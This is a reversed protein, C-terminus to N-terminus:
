PTTTNPLNPDMPKSSPPDQNTNGSQEESQTGRVDKRELLLQAGMMPNNQHWSGLLASAEGDSLEWLRKYSQGWKLFRQSTPQWAVWGEAQRVALAMANLKSPERSCVGSSHTFVPYVIPTQQFAYGSGISCCSVLNPLEQASVEADSSDPRSQDKQTKKDLGTQKLSVSDASSSKSSRSREQRQGRLQTTM